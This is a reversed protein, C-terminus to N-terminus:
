DACSKTGARRARRCAAALGTAVVPLIKRAGFRDVQRGILPLLCGGILTAVMYSFSYGTRDIGLESLMPDVFAAVSFSQGPASMFVTLAAIGLM